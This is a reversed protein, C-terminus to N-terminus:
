VKAPPLAIFSANPGVAICLADASKNMQALCKNMAAM